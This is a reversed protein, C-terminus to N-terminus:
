GRRKLMQMFRKKKSCAAEKEESEENEDDDDGSDLKENKYPGVLGQAAMNGLSGGALGALAIKEAAAKGLARAAAVNPLTSRDYEASLRNMEKMMQAAEPVEGGAASRMANLKQRIADAQDRPSNGAGPPQYGPANRMTNSKRLLENARAQVAAADSVEGGAARRRKNLDALMAHAQDSPNTHQPAMQMATAPNQGHTKNQITSRMAQNVEQGAQQLNLRPQTQPAAPKSQLTQPAMQM